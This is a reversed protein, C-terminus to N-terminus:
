IIVKSLYNNRYSSPSIGLNKKFQKSFTFQDKYGVSNSIEFISLSDKALFACAKDMKIKLIYEIPTQGLIRKFITYLYKRSIGIYAALDNVSIDCHYNKEVYDISSKVYEEVISPSYNSDNNKPTIQTLKSLFLYLHGMRYLETEFSFKNSAAMNELNKSFFEIDECYFVPKDYSLNAQHLIKKANIGNFGVWYYHWPDDVDAEYYVVTEPCILFGNGASLSYTKSGCKFIGKGSVVYHILYHHRVAPGWSHGKNCTHEGCHYFNLDANLIEDNAIEWREGDINFKMGTTPFVGAEVYEELNKVGLNFYSSM